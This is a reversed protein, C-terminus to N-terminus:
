LVPKELETLRDRALRALEEAKMDLERVHREYVELPMEVPGDLADTLLASRDHDIAELLELVRRDDDSELRVSARADQLRQRENLLQEMVQELMGERRAEAYDRFLKWTGGVHADSAAVVERYVARLRDHKRDRLSRADAQRALKTQHHLTM